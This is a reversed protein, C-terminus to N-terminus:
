RSILLQNVFQPRNINFVRLRNSADTAKPTPAV